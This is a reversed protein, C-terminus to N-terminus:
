GWEFSHRYPNGSFFSAGVFRNVWFTLPVALPLVHHAFWYACGVDAPKEFSM